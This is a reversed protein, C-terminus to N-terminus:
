TKVVVLNSMGRRRREILGKIELKDLIRSVKVKSFGTKRILEGQFISGDCDLILNYIKKEEESLNKIIEKLRNQKKIEIEKGSSKFLFLYLGVLALAVSFTFGVISETPLSGRKIPCIEEPMPCQRHLELGYKLVTETLFYIILFLSLSIAVILIGIIRIHM